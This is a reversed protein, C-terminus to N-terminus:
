EPPPVFKVSGDPYVTVNAGYVEITVPDPPKIIHKPAQVALMERPMVALVWGPGGAPACPIPAAVVTPKGCQFCDFNEARRDKGDSIDRAPIFAVGQSLLIEAGQKDCELCITTNYFDLVM